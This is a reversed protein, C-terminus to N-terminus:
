PMTMEGCVVRNIGKLSRLSSRFFVTTAVVSEIIGLAITEDNRNLGIIARQPMENGGPRFPLGRYYFPMASIDLIQEFQKQKMFYEDLKRERYARRSSASRKRATRSAPLRHIRVKGLLSLIHELEDERQIAVIHAPRIARIKATKLAKGPEGSVLGTTDVVVIGARRRVINTMRKTMAVILPIIKSPNTFGLFTMLESSFDGIDEQDCFTKMSITGPLGIASQGIDADVLATRLHGSVLSEVIYRALTTKGSDTSGLLMVTGQQAKLACLLRNWGPEPLIKM